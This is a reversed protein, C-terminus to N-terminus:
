ILILLEEFPVTLLIFALGLCASYVQLILIRYLVLICYIYLFCEFTLLFVIWSLFTCFLSFVKGLFIHSHSILVHLSTLIMLSICVLITILYCQVGIKIASVSFIAWWTSTFVLPKQFEWINNTSIYFPVVMKSFNPIQDQCEDVLFSLM